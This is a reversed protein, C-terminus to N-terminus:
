LKHSASTGFISSLLEKTKTVFYWKRRKGTGESQLRALTYDCHNEYDTRPGTLPGAESRGTAADLLMPQDVNRTGGIYPGTIRPENLVGLSEAHSQASGTKRPALFLRRKGEEESLEQIRPAPHVFGQDSPALSKDSELIGLAWIAVDALWSLFGKVIFYALGLCIALTPGSGM